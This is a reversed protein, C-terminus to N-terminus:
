EAQGCGPSQLWNHKRCLVTFPQVLRDRQLCSRLNGLDPRIDPSLSLKNLNQLSTSGTISKLMVSAVFDQAFNNERMELAWQDKTAAQILGAIAFQYKSDTLRCIWVSVLDDTTAVLGLTTAMAGASPCTLTGSSIWETVPLIKPGLRVSKVSSGKELIKEWIIALQLLAFPM